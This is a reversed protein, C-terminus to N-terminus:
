TVCINYTGEVLHVLPFAIDDSGTLLAFTESYSTCICASASPYEAHPMTRIFPQWEKAPIDRPGGRNPGGYTNVVENGLLEHVVTTPRVKNHAIKERWAIVIADTSLHICVRSKSTM